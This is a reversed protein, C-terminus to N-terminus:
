SARSAPDLPRNAHRDDAARIRRSATGTSHGRPLRPPQCPLRPCGCPARRRGPRPRPPRAGLCARVRARARRPRQQKCATCHTLAQGTGRKPEPLAQGTGSTAQAPRKPPPTQPPSRTAKRGAVHQRLTQTAASHLPAHLPTSRPSRPAHKAAAQLPGAACQSQVPRSLRAMNRTNRTGTWTREFRHLLTEWGRALERPRRRGPARM